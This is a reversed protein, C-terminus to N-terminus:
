RYKSYIREMVQERCRPSVRGSSERCAKDVEADVYAFCTDTNAGGSRRLTHHCPGEGPNKWGSNSSQQSTSSQGKGCSSTAFGFLETCEGQPMETNTSGGFSRPASSRGPSAIGIDDITIEPEISIGNGAGSAAGSYQTSPAVAAGTRNNNFQQQRAERAAIRASAERALIIASKESQHAQYAKSQREQANTQEWLDNMVQDPTRQKSRQFQDRQASEQMIRNFVDDEKAKDGSSIAGILELMNEIEKASDSNQQALTANPVTSLGFLALCLLKRMKM